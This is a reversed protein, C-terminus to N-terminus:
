LRRHRGFGQQDCRGSNQTVQELRRYNAGGSRDEVIMKVGGQTGIGRVPPPPLIRIAAGPIVALSKQLDAIMGNLTVQKRGDEFSSEIV